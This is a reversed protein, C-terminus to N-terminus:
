DPILIFILNLKLGLNENHVRQRFQGCQVMHFLQGM